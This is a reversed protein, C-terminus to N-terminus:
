GNSTDEVILSFHSTHMVKQFCSFYRREGPENSISCRHLCMASYLSCRNSYRVFFAKPWLFSDHWTLRYFQEYSIYKSLKWRHTNAASYKGLLVSCSSPSSLAVPLFPLPFCHLCHWKSTPHLNKLDRWIRAKSLGRPLVLGPSQNASVSSPRVILTPQIGALWVEWCASKKNESKLFM